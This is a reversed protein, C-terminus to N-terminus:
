FEKIFGLGMAPKDNHVTNYPILKFGALESLLGRNSTHFFKGWGMLESNEIMDSLIFLDMSSTSSQREEKVLRRGKAAQHLGCLALYLYIGHDAISGGGADLRPTAGNGPALLLRLLLVDEAGAWLQGPQQAGIKGGKNHPMFLSLLKMVVKRGPWCLDM